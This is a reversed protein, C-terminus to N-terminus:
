LATIIGKLRERLAKSIPKTPKFVLESRIHMHYDGRAPYVTYQDDGADMEYCYDECGRKAIDAEARQKIDEFMETTIPTGAVVCLEVRDYDLVEVVDGVKFRVLEEPRGHFKGRSDMMNRDNFRGDATYSCSSCEQEDDCSDLAIETLLYGLFDERDEEDMALRREVHSRMAEEAKKQSSFLGLRWRSAKRVPYRGEHIGIAQLEFVTSKSFPMRKKYIAQIMRQQIWWSADRMFDYNANIDYKMVAKQLGDRGAEKLEELTLGKDLHKEAINEVLRAYVEYLENMEKCDCGKEQVAKLLERNKNMM